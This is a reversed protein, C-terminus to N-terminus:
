RLTSTTDDMKLAFLNANNSGTNIIVTGKYAVPRAAANYDDNEVIWIQKGTRPDYGYSAKASVSILQTTGNVDVINPTNYAKRFDGDGRVKGDPGVDKYDVSRDTRWVTKGTNKDLATVYHQDIGDFTLIVLNDFVVPSSGPGRFHRCPLDRRQWMVEATEPNLRATGYSGFHVYVGDAELVCSPSAYTNINNSLPEPDPNEFLLKHHIVKGTEEDVCYVFQQKGDETASTFWIRGAGIVPTSHGKGEIKIKWAINEGTAENWTTPIGVSDEAAANGNYFPGSKDPWSFAGKDLTGGIKEASAPLSHAAIAFFAGLWTLRCNGM